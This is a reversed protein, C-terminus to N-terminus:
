LSRFFEKFSLITRDNKYHEINSKDEEPVVLKINKSKIKDIKGEPIRRDLTIFYSDEHVQKWREKLTTKVSLPIADNNQILFDIRKDGAQRDYKVGYYDLLFKIYWEFSYGARSRRSQTISKSVKIIDDLSSGIMENFHTWNQPLDYNREQIKETIIEPYHIKELTKVMMFEAKQLMWRTLNGPGNKLGTEFPNKSLHIGPCSIHEKIYEDYNGTLDWIGYATDRTGPIKNYNDYLEYAKRNIADLFESSIDVEVGSTDESAINIIGWNSGGPVDSLDIFENLLGDDDIVIANYFNKNKQFRGIVLLAGSNLDEFYPNYVNTLHVEPRNKRNGECYYRLTAYEITSRDVDDRTYITDNLMWQIMIEFSENQVPKEEIGFFEIYQRPILVGSQHSKGEVWQHDNTSLYKYFLQDYEHYHELFNNIDKENCSPM